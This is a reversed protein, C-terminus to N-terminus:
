DAALRAIFSHVGTDAHEGYGVIVTGDASIDSPDLLVWGEVDAGLEELVDLLLRASGAGDYIWGGEESMGVIVTGDANVSRPVAESLNGVPIPTGGSAGTWIFARKDAGLADQYQGVITTGDGSIAVARAFPVDDPFLERFEEAETWRFAVVFRDATHGQGVVIAADDSVGLPLLSGGSMTGVDRLRTAETWRFLDDTDGPNFRGIITSGDASVGRADASDGVGLLTLGTEETWRYADQVGQRIVVSGVVVSGDASV